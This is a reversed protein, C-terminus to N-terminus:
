RPGFLLKVAGWSMTQVPVTPINWNTGEYSWVIVGSDGASVIDTGTFAIAKLTAHVHSDALQWDQLGSASFYTVGADGVLLTADGISLVAFISASTPSSLATWHLGDASGQWLVGGIGCALYGGDSLAAVGFLNPTGPVDLARAWSAGSVNGAVIVGNDGVAVCSSPASTLANSAVGRLSVSVPSTQSSWTAGSLDASAWIIGGDGVAVVANQAVALANLSRSAPAALPSFRTGTPDSTWIAGNATAILYRSGAYVVANYSLSSDADAAKWWNQHITSSYFIVGKGCAVGSDATGAIGYLPKRGLAPGPSLLIVALVLAGLFGPGHATGVAPRVATGQAAPNARGAHDPDQKRGRLAGGM